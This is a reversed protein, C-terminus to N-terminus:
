ISAELPEFDLLSPLYLFLFHLVILFSDFCFYTCNIIFYKQLWLLPFTTSTLFSMSPEGRAAHFSTCPKSLHPRCLPLLYCRFLSPLPFLFHLPHLPLSLMTHTSNYFTGRSDHCLIFCLATASLAQLTIISVRLM